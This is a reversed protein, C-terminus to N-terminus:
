RRSSQLQPRQPSLVLRQYVSGWVFVFGAMVLLWGMLAPQTAVLRGVGTALAGLVTGFVQVMEGASTLAGQMLAPRGLFWIGLLLPVIGSLLVLAYVAAIGWLRYRRDPILALTREAFDAAPRLMPAQRLLLEVALLAQWETMCSPCTELHADLALREDSGLEGDLADMMWLYYTEDHDYAM